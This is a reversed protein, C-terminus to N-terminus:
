FLFFLRCTSCNVSRSFVSRRLPAFLLRSSRHVTYAISDRDSLTLLLSARPVTYPHSFLLLCPPLAIFPVAYLLAIFFSFFVRVSITFLVVFLEILYNLLPSPHVAPSRCSSCHVSQSLSSSVAPMLSIAYPLILRYFQAIAVSPFALVARHVTSLDFFPLLYLPFPYLFARCVGLAYPRTRPRLSISFLDHPGKIRYFRSFSVPSNSSLPEFSLCGISHLSVFPTSSSRPIAPLQM